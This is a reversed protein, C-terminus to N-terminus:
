RKGPRGFVGGSTTGPSTARNRLPHGHSSSPDRAETGLPPWTQHANENSSPARLGAWRPRASTGRRVGMCSLVARGEPCAPPCCTAQSGALGVGRPTLTWPAGEGVSGQALVQKALTLPSSLLPRSSLLHGGPFTAAGQLELSVAPGRRVQRFARVCAGHGRDRVRQRPHRPQARLDPGSQGKGERFCGTRLQQPTQSVGGSSVWCNLSM